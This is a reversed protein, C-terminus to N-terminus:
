QVQYINGLFVEWIQKTENGFKKKVKKAIIDCQMNAKNLLAKTKGQKEFVFLRFRIVGKYESEDLKKITNTISVNYFQLTLVGYKDNQLSIFFTDVKLAKIEQNERLKFTITNDGSAFLGRVMDLAQKKFTDEITSDSLIEFYDKLDQLKQIARQEFAKINRVTLSDNQLNLIEIFQDSASDHGNAERDTPGCSVIVIVMVSALFMGIYKIHQKM